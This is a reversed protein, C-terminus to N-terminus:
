ENDIVDLNEPDTLGPGDSHEAKIKSKITPTADRPIQRREYESTRRM